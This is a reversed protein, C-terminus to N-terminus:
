NERWLPCTSNAWSVRCLRYESDHRKVEKVLGLDVSTQHFVEFANIGVIEFPRLELLSWVEPGENLLRQPVLRPRGTSRSADGALLVEEILTLPVGTLMVAMILWQSV